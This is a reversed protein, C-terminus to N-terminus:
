STPPPWNSIGNDDCESLPPASILVNIKKKRFYQKERYFKPLFIIKTGLNYMLKTIRRQVRFLKNKTRSSQFLENKYMFKTRTGSSQFFENKTRSSQFLENKCM